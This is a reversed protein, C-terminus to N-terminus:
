NLRCNLSKLLRQGQVVHQRHKRYHFSPSGQVNAIMTELVECAGPTNQQHTQIEAMLLAAEPHSWQKLHGELHQQALNFDGLEFLVHGYALSVDGYKFDPRVEMLRELSVIAQAWNKLQFDICASGWLAEVNHPEKRLAQQYAALAHGSKKMKQHIHGLQVYQYAKGINRVNSIASDLENQLRRRKIFINHGLLTEPIWRTCLYVLAGVFHLSIFVLGWTMRAHGRERHFCDYFMWAWFSFMILTTVSATM